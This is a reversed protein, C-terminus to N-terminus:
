HKGEPTAEMAQLIVQEFQKLAGEPFESLSRARVANRDDRKTDEGKLQELVEVVSDDPNLIYCARTSPFTKELAGSAYGRANMLIMPKRTVLYENLVSSIDTLMLDSRNMCEHIPLSSDLWEIQGSQAALRQLAQKAERVEASRHGTYPHLKLLVRYDGREILSKVMDVGFSKVSCYDADAVFGEWTPAYLITKVPTPESQQDLLIEAQPRGVYEIQEERVPLGADRLRQEALPGGVLLKDYAMLLKSQNVSKDSEGHNIFFHQLKFHRLSQVNKMTNAPYLVVRLSEGVTEYLNEVDFMARAFYIPINTADIGQATRRERIVILVNLPLRELVPLWQNVQYAVNALGSIYVVAQPAAEKLRALNFKRLKQRRFVRYSLRFVHPAMILWGIVMALAALGTHVLFLAPVIVLAMPLWSRVAKPLAMTQGPTMAEVPVLQSSIKGYYPVSAQLTTTLLVILLQLWGPEVGLFSVGVLVALTLLVPFVPLGLIYNDIFNKM